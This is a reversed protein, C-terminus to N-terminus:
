KKIKEFVEAYKVNPMIKMTDAYGEELLVANFMNKTIYEETIEANSCDVLWLYALTRGYDDKRDKDYELYYTQGVILQSKTFDSAIKGAKINKSDDPNVSEPTDVGILRVRVNDASKMNVIVTDGDVVRVLTVPEVSILNSGSLQENSTAETTLVKQKPEDLNKQQVHSVLLCAGVAVVLVFFVINLFKSKFFSILKM